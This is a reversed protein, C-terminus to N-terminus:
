VANPNGHRELLLVMCAVLTEKRRLYRLAIHVVSATPRTLRRLCGRYTLGPKNEILILECYHQDAAKVPV